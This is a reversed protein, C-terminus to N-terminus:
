AFSAHRSWLRDLHGTFANLYVSDFCPVISLLESHGLALLYGGRGKTPPADRYEKSVRDQFRQVGPLIGACSNDGRCPCACLETSAPTQTKSGKQLPYIRWLRISLLLPHLHSCWTEQASREFPWLQRSISGTHLRCHHNPRSLNFWHTVSYLGCPLIRECIWFQNVAHMMFWHPTVLRLLRAVLIGTPLFILFGLVMLVAHAIILKRYGKMGRTDTASGSAGINGSAPTFSGNSSTLNLVTSGAVLHQEIIANSESSSPVADSFAWIVTEEVDQPAQARRDAVQM